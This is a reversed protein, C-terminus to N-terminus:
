NCNSPQQQCYAPGLSSWLIFSLVALALGVLAVIRTSTSSRPLLAGIFGPLITAGLLPFGYVPAVWALQPLVTVSAIVSIVGFFASFLAFFLGVASSNSSQPQPTHENTTMDRNRGSRTRRDCSNYREESDRLWPREKDGQLRFRLSQHGSQDNYCRLFIVSSRNRDTIHCSFLSGNEIPVARATRAHWM